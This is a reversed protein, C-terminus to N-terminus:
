VVLLMALTNLCPRIASFVVALIELALLMTATGQGESVPGHVESVELHIFYRALTPIDPWIALSVFALPLLVFHV